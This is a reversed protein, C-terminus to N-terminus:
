FFGHKNEPLGQWFELVEGWFQAPSEGIVIHECGPFEWLRKPGAYGHYLSLGFKEPVVSDGGDVMIGVPGSYTRLYEASPFRDVLLLWAPLWPFHDQAVRALRDYPSLLMIGAVAQPHTGALYSAVGTGLSEGVVYLGLGAYLLRRVQRLWAPPMPKEGEHM